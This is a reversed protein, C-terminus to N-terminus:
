KVLRHFCFGHEDRHDSHEIKYGEKILEKLRANAQTIFLGRNLYGGSVWGGNADTLAKLVKEKQTLKKSFLDYQTM